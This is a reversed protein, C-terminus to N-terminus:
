VIGIPVKPFDECFIMRSNNSNYWHVVLYLVFFLTSYYLLKIFFNGNEIAGSTM